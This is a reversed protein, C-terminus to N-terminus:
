IQENVIVARKYIGNDDVVIIKSDSNWKLKYIKVGQRLYNSYLESHILSPINAKNMYKRDVPDLYSKVSGLLRGVRSEPINDRVLVEYKCNNYIVYPYIWFNYFGFTQYEKFYTSEEPSLAININKVNAARTEYLKREDEGQKPVILNEIKEIKINTYSGSMRKVSGRKDLGKEMTDPNGLAKIVYPPKIKNNDVTIGLDDQIIQSYKTLRIDNISIAYAGAIRLEKVISRTFGDDITGFIRALIDTKFEDRPKPSLTVSIGEGEVDVAMSAENTIKDFPILSNGQSSNTLGVLGIALVLILAVLTWILSNKGFRAIMHIRRKIGTGNGSIGATGPIWCTKSFVKLVDIATEGYKKYEEPEIYSLVSADCAIECDEQMKYCAYWIIPNFWHISKIILMISNVLIDKRKFHAIEHLFIYRKKQVSLKDFLNAPIILKPRFIGLLFPPKNGPYYILPINKKVKLLSKCEELIELNNRDLCRFYKKIGLYFVINLVSIYLLMIGAGVIWVLSIIDLYSSVSQRKAPEDKMVPTDIKNNKDQIFTSEQASINIEHNETVNQSIEDFQSIEINQATHPFLNFVSFHSQPAYPLTLRIILLFWIGYHWSASLKDKLITKLMILIVAVISGM